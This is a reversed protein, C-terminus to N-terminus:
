SGLLSQVGGAALGSAGACAAAGITTIANLAGTILAMKWGGGYSDDLTTGTLGQALVLHPIGLITSAVFLRIAMKRAFNM